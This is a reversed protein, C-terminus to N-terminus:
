NLEFEFYLISILVKNLKNLDRCNWFNLKLKIKIQILWHKIPHFIAPPVTCIPRIWGAQKPQGLWKPSTPWWPQVPCRARGVAASAAAQGAGAHRRLPRLPPSSPHSPLVACGAPPDFLPPAEGSPHAGHHHATPRLPVVAPAADPTSPRRSTTCSPPVRRHSARPPLPSSLPPGHAASCPPEVTAFCPPTTPTVPPLFFPQERPTPSGKYGTSATSPPRRPQSDLPPSIAAAAVTQPPRRPGLATRDTLSDVPAWTTKNIKWNIWFQSLRSISFSPMVKSWFNGFKANKYRPVNHVNKEM